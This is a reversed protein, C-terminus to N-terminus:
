VKDTIPQRKIVHLHRSTVNVWEGGSRWTGSVPIDPAQLYIGHWTVSIDSSRRISQM